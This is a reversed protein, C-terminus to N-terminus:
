KKSKEIITVVAHNANVEVIDGDSLVKTAIKAGVICPIKLERAVIAAHCIAGGEDSIIAAAKKMAPLFDPLTTPAVLIEDNKFQKIQDKSIIKRVKGIVKGPYATTGKIKSVKNKENEIKINFKEEIQKKTKGIFLKSDTYYYSNLRQKLTKQSPLQGRIAESFTLGSTLNKIQPYAKELSKKTIETSNSYFLEGYKRTEQLTKMEEGEKENIEELLDIFWWTLEFWPWTHRVELAFTEYEKMPVAQNQELVKKIKNIKQRFKAAVKKYYSRDVQRTAKIQEKVWKIGAPDFYTTVIGKACEFVIYPHSPQAEKTYQRPDSKEGAYWVEVMALPITRTFYKLYTPCENEKQFSKIKRVIGKDADVEIIDNDKFIKTAYKTGVICPKKLERSLVAAHCTVGGEDTIFAAAKKMFPTYEVMTTKAILIDGPNVKQLDEKTLIIRARGKAIGPYANTGNAYQTTPAKRLKEFLWMVKKPNTEIRLEKEFIMYTKGSKRKQIELFNPLKNNQLFGLIEKSTLWPMTTYETKQKTVKELENRLEEFFKRSYALYKRLLDMREFRFQAYNNILILKRKLKKNKIKKLTLLLRKKNNKLEKQLKNKEAFATKKTISDIEKKFYEEDALKEVLSYETHWFYEKELEKPSPVGNLKSRIIDLRMKQYNTPKTQSAIANWYEESKSKYKKALEKKCQPELITDIAFPVFNADALKICAKLWIKYRKAMEKKSKTASKNLKKAATIMKTELTKFEKFHKKPNSIVKKLLNKYYPQIESKKLYIEIEGNGSSLGIRTKLKAGYCFYIGRIEFTQTTMPRSAMYEFENPNM